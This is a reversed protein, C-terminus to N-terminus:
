ILCFRCPLTRYHWTSLHSNNEVSFWGVNINQCVINHNRHNLGVPVTIQRM